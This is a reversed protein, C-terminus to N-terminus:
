TRLLLLHACYCIYSNLQENPHFPRSSLSLHPKPFLNAMMLLLEIWHILACFRSLNGCRLFDILMGPYRIIKASPVSMNTLRLNGEVQMLFAWWKIDMREDVFPFRSLEQYDIGNAALVEPDYRDFLEEEDDDMEHSPMAYYPLRRPDSRSERRSLTRPPPSKYPETCISPVISRISGM